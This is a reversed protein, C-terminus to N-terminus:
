GLSEVVELLRDLHVPKTLHREFGAAISQRVDDPTGFGSIAIGRVHGNRRLASMVDTGSGDPLGIDSVLVDFADRGCEIGGAVSHATVVEHGRMGLVTALAEASDPDDEVVLIRLRRPSTAPATAPLTREEAAEMTPLVVTLTTGQDEGESAASIRGGHAEVLGRSIALGLGLAGRRRGPPDAQDFPQFIAELRNRPVGRGTDQVQLVISEDLDRTRIAIMGRRPTNRIANSVLNWVVQRLRVPDGDMRSRTADLQLTLTLGAGRLDQAAGDAVDRVVDHLDFIKRDLRLKGHVIRSVDLLDDILRVELDLNRRILALADPMRDPPVLGRELTEVTYLIPSLPNRLEHSLVALFRDKAESEASALQRQRESREREAEMRRREAFAQERETMDVLACLISAGDEALNGRKSVLQVPTARGGRGTLELDITERGFSTRCRRIHELLRRRDNAIVAVLLPMGILRQRERGLLKAAALNVTQIIGTADLSLYGIPAFDFLEGYRHRAVELEARAAALKARQERSEASQCELEQLLARNQARLALDAEVDRLTARVDTAQDGELKPM